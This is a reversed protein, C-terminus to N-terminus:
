KAEPSDATASLFDDFDDEENDEEPCCAIMLNKSMGM